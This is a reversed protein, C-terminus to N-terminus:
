RIVNTTINAPRGTLAAGLEQASITGMKGCGTDNYVFTKGDESVSILSIAHGGYQGNKWLRAVDVSVIVGHGTQVAEALKQTTESRDFSVPMCYTQLGCRALIEQRGAVTTGGRDEPNPSFLEMTVLVSDSSHLATSIIANEDFGRVGALTLLNSCQCLGCTGQMDYQSNGQQQILRSNSGIPDNYVRMEEGNIIQTTFGYETENLSRPSDCSERADFVRGKPAEKVLSDLNSETLPLVPNSYDGNINRLLEAQLLHRQKDLIESRITEDCLGRKELDAAYEAIRCDITEMGAKFDLYKKFSLISRREIATSSNDPEIVAQENLAGEKGDVTDVQKHQAFQEAASQFATNFSPRKQQRDIDLALPKDLAVINVSRLDINKVAKLLLSEKDKLETFTFISNM